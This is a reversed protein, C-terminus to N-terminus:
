LQEELACVRLAVVEDVVLVDRLDAVPGLRVGDPPGVLLETDLAAAVPRQRPGVVPVEPVWRVRLRDVGDLAM